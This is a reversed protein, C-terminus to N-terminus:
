TSEIGYEDYLIPLASGAQATGDFAEGLLRVLKDYDALASTTPTPPRATSPSQELEDAYPHFAFGDM